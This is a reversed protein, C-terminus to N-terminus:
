EPQQDQGQLNMSKYKISQFLNEMSNEDYFLVPKKVLFEEPLIDQNTMLVPILEGCKKDKLSEALCSKVTHQFFQSNQYDQTVLVFIYQRTLYPIVNSRYQGPLCVEAKFEIKLKPIGVHLKKEFKQANEHDDDSHLVVATDCYSERDQNIDSEFEKNLERDDLRWDVNLDNLRKNKKKRKESKRNRKSSFIYDCLQKTKSPILSLGKRLWRPKTSQKKHNQPIDTGNLNSVNGQSPLPYGSHLDINALSGGVQKQKRKSTQNTHYQKKNTKSLEDHSQSRCAGSEEDSLQNITDVSMSSSPSVSKNEVIGLHFHFSRSQGLGCRQYAGGKLHVVSGEIENSRRTDCFVPKITSLAASHDGCTVIATQDTNTSTKYDHDACENLSELHSTPSSFPIVNQINEHREWSEIEVSKTVVEPIDLISDQIAKDPPETERHNLIDPEIYLGEQANRYWYGKEQPDFKNKVQQVLKKLNVVQIHRENTQRDIRSIKEELNYLREKDVQFGTNLEALALTLADILLDTRDEKPRTNVEYIIQFKQALLKPKKLYDELASAIDCCEDFYTEFQSHTIDTNPLHCIENRVRALSSMHTEFHIKEPFHRLLKILITIDFCQYGYGAATTFLEEERQTFRGTFQGRVAKYYDEIQYDAISRHLLERLLETLDDFVIKHLISLYTNCKLTDFSLCTLRQDFDTSSKFPFSM